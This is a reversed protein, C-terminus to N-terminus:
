VIRPGAPVVSSGQTVAPRRGLRTNVLAIGSVILVLGLLLRGDVPEHLFVAGLAVGFLPLLYAVVSTGSAGRRSLLNFFMLYAVGSGLFGLWLVALAAGPEVSLTWPRDVVLATLSVLVFAFGVQFLAPIMPRLGHIHARAYVAGCAYAITSGVLALAGALESGAVATRPDFGVLVAVGIFGLIVGGIRGPTLPEDRLALAAIPIVLLPVAGNIVSALTSDVRQEAWTILTFPIVINVVAMVLLHGYTRPDRPLSERAVAVVAALLGFGLMLRLAVLTFLPLGADVGIKIFMYSSGWLFGLLVFLLWDLRSGTSTMAGHDRARPGM